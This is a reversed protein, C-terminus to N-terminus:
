REWDDRPSGPFWGPLPIGRLKGRREIFVVRAATDKVAYYSANPQPNPAPAVDVVYGKAKLAALVEDKSVPLALDRVSEPQAVVLPQNRTANLEDMAELLRIEANAQNM